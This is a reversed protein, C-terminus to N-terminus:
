ECVLPVGIYAGIRVQKGIGAVAYAAEQDSRPAVVPGESQVMRSCFTDAFRFVEGPKIGYGHDEVQLIIWDEGSVRTVMWLDFGIRRHLYELIGSAASCFDKFAPLELM